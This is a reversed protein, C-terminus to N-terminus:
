RGLKEMETAVRDEVALRIPQEWKGLQGEPPLIPRAPGLGKGRIIETKFTDRTVELVDEVDKGAARAKERKKETAKKDVRFGTKSRQRIREHWGGQHFRGVYSGTELEVKSGSISVTSQALAGSEVLIPHAGSTPAWPDGMPSRAAAFDQRYQEKAEDGAADAAEPIVEAPLKRLGQELKQLRGFDGALTAAM